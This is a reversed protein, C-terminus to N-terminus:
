NQVSCHGSFNGRVDWVLLDTRVNQSAQFTSVGTLVGSVKNIRLAVDANYGGTYYSFNFAITNGDVEYEHRVAFPKWDSDGLDTVSIGGRGDLHATLNLSFHNSRDSYRHGGEILSETRNLTETGSVEAACQITQSVGDAGILSSELKGNLRAIAARADSGVKGPASAAESFLRQAAVLDANGSNRAMYCLGLEYKPQPNSDDLALGATYRKICTDWEANQLASYGQAFLPAAIQAQAGQPAFFLFQASLAVCANRLGFIPQRM